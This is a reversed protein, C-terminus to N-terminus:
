DLGNGYIKDVIRKVTKELREIELNQRVDAPLIGARGLPWDRVFDMAKSVDRSMMQIQYDNHRVRGSLTSAWWVIGAAQLLLMSSLSILFKPDM